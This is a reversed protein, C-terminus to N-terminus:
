VAIRNIRGALLSVTIAIAINNMYDFIYQPIFRYFAFRIHVLKGPTETTYATTSHSTDFIRRTNFQLGGIVRIGDQGIQHVVSEQNQILRIQGHCDSVAVRHLIDDERYQSGTGVLHMLLTHIYTRRREQDFEFGFFICGSCRHNDATQMAVGRLHIRRHYHKRICDCHSITYQNRHIRYSGTDTHTRHVKKSGIVRIIAFSHMM